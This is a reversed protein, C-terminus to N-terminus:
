EVVSLGENDGEQVGAQVGDEDVVSVVGQVGIPCRGIQQAHSFWNGPDLVGCYIIKGLYHLVEPANLM